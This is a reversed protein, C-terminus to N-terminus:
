FFNRFIYIGLIYIFYIFTLTIVRRRIEKKSRIFKANKDKERKKQFKFIDIVETTFILVIAFIILSFNTYYPIQVLHVDRVFQYAIILVLLHSFQDLIFPKIKKDHKLDYSIKSQDIFFHAISILGTITVLYLIDSWMFPLLIITLVLFHTFSHVFTGVFSRMKWRVMKSSQLVFDGLLHGLVLYTFIM